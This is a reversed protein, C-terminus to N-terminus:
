GGEAVLEFTLGATTPREYVISDHVAASHRWIEVDNSQM